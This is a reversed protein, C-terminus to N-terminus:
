FHVKTFNAFLKLLYQGNNIIKKYLFDVFLRCDLTWMQLKCTNFFQIGAQTLEMAAMRMWVANIM